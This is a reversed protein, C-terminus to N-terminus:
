KLKYRKFSEVDLPQCDICLNARVRGPIANITRFNTKRIWDTHQPVYEYVSSAYNLDRGPLGTM